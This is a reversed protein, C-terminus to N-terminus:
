NYIFSLTHKRRGNPKHETEIRVGTVTHRKRFLILFCGKKLTPVCLGASNSSPTTAPNMLDSGTCRSERLTTVQSVQPPTHAPPGEADAGGQTQSPLDQLGYLADVRHAEQMAVNFRHTM